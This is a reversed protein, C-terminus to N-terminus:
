IRHFKFQRGFRIPPCEIWNYTVASMLITITFTILLLSMGHVDFFSLVYLVVPHVLYISYSIRGLFDFYPNMWISSSRSFYPVSFIVGALIWSNAAMQFSATPHPSPFLKLGVYLNLAITMLLIILIIGFELRRHEDTFYRYFELGLVCCVLMSIRGMPLHFGIACACQALISLGVAGTVILRTAKNLGVLFLSSVVIYWVVELSLTWSGGVFGPVKLYEQIFLAHAVINEFLDLASHIGGAHRFLLTTCYILAYLPYIRLARHVWFLRFDNTKELSLPIVFGSVIFFAVVGTEGLELWTPIFGTLRTLDSGLLGSQYLTHQLMVLCAAFGRISDLFGYRGGGLAGNRIERKVREM